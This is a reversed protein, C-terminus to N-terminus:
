TVPKRKTHLKLRTTKLIEIRERSTLISRHLYFKGVFRTVRLRCTADFNANQETTFTKKKKVVPSWNLYVM